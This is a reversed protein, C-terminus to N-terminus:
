GLDIVLEMKQTARSKVDGVVTEVFAKRVNMDEDFVERLPIRRKQPTPQKRPNARQLLFKQKMNNTAPRIVRMIQLEDLQSKPPDTNSDIKIKYASTSSSSDPLVLNPLPLPSVDVANSHFTILKIPPAYPDPKVIQTTETSMVKTVTSTKKIPLLEETMSRIPITSLHKTSTISHTTKSLRRGPSPSVKRRKKGESQSNVPNSTSVYIDRGRRSRSNRELEVHPRIFDLDVKTDTGSGVVYKVDVTEVYGHQCYDIHTVRGVGGPRNIGAWLRPEVQVLQGIHYDTSSKMM